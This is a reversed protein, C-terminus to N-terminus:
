RRLTWGPAHAASGQRVPECQFLRVVVQGTTIKDFEPWVEVNVLRTDSKRKKNVVLVPVVIEQLTAGWARLLRM